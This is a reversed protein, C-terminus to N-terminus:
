IVQSYQNLAARIHAQASFVTSKTRDFATKSLLDTALKEALLQWDVVVLDAPVHGVQTFPVSPPGGTFMLRCNSALKMLAQPARFALMSAVWSSIIVGKGEMQALSELFQDLRDDTANQFAFTYNEEELLAQLIEEKAASGRPGRVVVASNIGNQSRWDRLIRKIAVERRVEYRCRTPSVDGDSIAVISVGADKLESIVERVSTDPRYWLVTDVGYKDIRNKLKGTKIDRADFFVTAVAFGRAHLDRRTRICFSRYDQLAVFSSVSAPIGVLGQVNLHRGSSRGQLVTKSGRITVLLGEDELQSYVRAVTSLPVRFHHAIERVPYFAQPEEVQSKIAAGRILEVLRATKHDQPDIAPRKPLPPLRRIVKKRAM